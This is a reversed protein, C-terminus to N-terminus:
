IRKSVWPTFGRSVHVLSVRTNTESIFCWTQM